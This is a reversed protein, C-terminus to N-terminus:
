VVLGLERGRLIAQTRSTVELKSYINTIHKKVTGVEVTLKESIEQNSLGQAILVLIEIERISLPDILSQNATLSSTPLQAADSGGTLEKLLRSGEQAISGPVSKNRLHGADRLPRLM